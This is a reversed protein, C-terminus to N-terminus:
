DFKQGGPITKLKRGGIIDREAAVGDLASADGGM